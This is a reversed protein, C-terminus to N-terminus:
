ARKNRHEGLRSLVLESMDTKILAQKVDSVSETHQAFGYASLFRLVFELLTERDDRPPIPSLDTSHSGAPM